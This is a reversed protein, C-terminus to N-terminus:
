RREDLEVDVIRPSDGFGRAVCYWTSRLKAGFSNEADVTGRLILSDNSALFDTSLIGSVDATSPAKLRNLLARKCGVYAAGKDIAVGAARATASDDGPSSAAALDAQFAATDSRRPQPASRDEAVSLALVLVLSIAVVVSVFRDRRGM